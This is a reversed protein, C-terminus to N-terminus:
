YTLESRQTKAEGNTFDLQLGDCPKPLLIEKPATHKPGLAPLPLPGQPKMLLCTILAVM